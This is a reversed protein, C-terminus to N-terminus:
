AESDSVFDRLWREFDEREYLWERDTTPMDVAGLATLADWVRDDSVGPDDAGVWRMAWTSVDSRSARGMILGRLQEEVQDRTPPAPAQFSAVRGKSAISARIRYRRITSGGDGRGTDAYFAGNELQDRILGRHKLWYGFARDAEDVPKFDVVVEYKEAVEFPGYGPEVETVELDSFVLRLNHGNTEFVVEHFDIGIESQWRSAVASDAVVKAGPYLDQWRIGWVYGDHDSHLEGCCDCYGKTPKLCQGTKFSELWVELDDCNTLVHERGDRRDEISIVYDDKGQPLVSVIRGIPRRVLFEAITVVSRQNM